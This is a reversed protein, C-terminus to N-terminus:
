FEVRIQINGKFMIDKAKMRKGSITIRITMAKAFACRGGNGDNFVLGTAVFKKMLNKKM